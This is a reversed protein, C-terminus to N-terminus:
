VQLRMIEQYAEVAKNRVAVALQMALAAQEVQMVVAAADTAQGTALAQSASQAGQQLGELKTVQGALMEGFGAGQGAGAGAFPTTGGATPEAGLPGIRFEPSLAIASVENVPV